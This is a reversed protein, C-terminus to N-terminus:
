EIIHRLRTADSNGRLAHSSTNKESLLPVLPVPLDHGMGKIPEFRASSIVSALAVAHVHPLLPNETRHIVLTPLKIKRLM